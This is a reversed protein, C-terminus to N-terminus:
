DGGKGLDVWTLVSVGRGMGGFGEGFGGGVRGTRLVCIQSTFFRELLLLVCGIPAEADDITACWRTSGLGAAGGALVLFRLGREEMEGPKRVELGKELFRISLSLCLEFPIWLEVERSLAGAGWRGTAGPEGGWPGGGGRRRRSRDM